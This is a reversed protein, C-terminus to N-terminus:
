RNLEACTRTSIVKPCVHAVGTGSAPANKVPQKVFDNGNVHGKGADSVLIRVDVEVPVDELLRDDVELPAFDLVIDDLGDTDPQEDTDKVLLEVANLVCAAVFRESDAVDANVGVAISVSM